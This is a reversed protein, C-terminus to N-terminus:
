GVMQFFTTKIKFFKLNDKLEDEMFFNLDYEILFNLDDEMLCFEM